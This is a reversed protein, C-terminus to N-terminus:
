ITVPMVILILSVTLFRSPCLFFMLNEEILKTDGQCKSIQDVIKDGPAVITGSSIIYRQSNSNSM